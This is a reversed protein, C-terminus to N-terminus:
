HNEKNLYLTMKGKSSLPYADNTYGNLNHDRYLIDHTRTDIQLSHTNISNTSIIHIHVRYQVFYIKQSTM